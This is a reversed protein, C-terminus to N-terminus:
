FYRIFFVVTSFVLAWSMIMINRTLPGHINSLTLNSGTDQQAKRVIPLRNVYRYYFESACVSFLVIVVPLTIHEVFTRSLHPYFASVYSSSSVLSCSMRVRSIVKLCQLDCFFHSLSVTKAGESNEASAAM